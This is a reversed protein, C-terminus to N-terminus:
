DGIRDGRGLDLLTGLLQNGTESLLYVNQSAYDYDVAYEWAKTNFAGSVSLLYCDSGEISVVDVCTIYMPKEVSYDTGEALKDKLVLGYLGCAADYPPMNEGIDGEFLSGAYIVGEAIPQNSTWDDGGQEADDAGQGGAHALFFASGEYPQDVPLTPLGQAAMDEPNRFTIPQAESQYYVKTIEMNRKFTTALSDMMFWNLSVTDYFYFDEEFGRDSVGAILTSHRSWDAVVSEGDPFLVDNLQFYLGTWESLGDALTFAIASWSVPEDGVTVTIQKEKIVGEPSGNSFDAYLTLSLTKGATQGAGGLPCVSILMMLVLLVLLSRNKM